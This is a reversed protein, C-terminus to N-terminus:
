TRAALDLGCGDFGPLIRQLPPHIREQYRRRYGEALHMMLELSLLDARTMVHRTSRSGLGHVLEELM